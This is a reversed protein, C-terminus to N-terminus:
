ANVGIHQKFKQNQLATRIAYYRNCAGDLEEFLHDGNEGGSGEMEQNIIHTLTTHYARIIQLAYDDLEQLNEVFNLMIASLESILDYKFVLGNAKLQMIPFILNDLSIRSKTKDKEAILIAEYLKNSFERAIPIFDIKNNEIVSQGRAVLEDDLKGIGTKAQLSKDPELITVSSPTTGRKQEAEDDESVRRRRSPGVFGPAIVFERPSNVIHLIKKAIDGSSFPKAMFETVGCDRAESIKPPSTFGSVMIIPIKRNPSKKSRRIKQALELGDCGPMDWDTIIIDPSYTMYKHYADEGDRAVTIDGVGMARLVERILERMPQLDEAVLIHLPAFKVKM